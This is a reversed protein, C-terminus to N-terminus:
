VFGSTECFDVLISSSKWYTKGVDQFCAHTTLTWAGGYLVACSGSISCSGISPIVDCLGSSFWM